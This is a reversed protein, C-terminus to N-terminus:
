LYDHDTLKGHLCSLANVNEGTYSLPEQTVKKEMLATFRRRFIDCRSIYLASAEAEGKKVASPSSVGELFHRMKILATMCINEIFLRQVCYKM